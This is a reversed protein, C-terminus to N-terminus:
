KKGLALRYHKDNMYGDLDNKLDVPILKSPKSSMDLIYTKFTKGLKKYLSVSGYTLQEDSMIYDFKCLLFKYAESAIGQNQESSIIETM